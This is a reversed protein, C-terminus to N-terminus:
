FSVVDLNEDLVVALATGKKRWREVRLTASGILLAGPLPARGCRQARSQL